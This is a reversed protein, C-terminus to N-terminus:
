SELFDIDGLQSRLEYPVFGLETRCLELAVSDELQYMMVLSVVADSASMDPGDEEMAHEELMVQMEHRADELTTIMTPGEMTPLVMTYCFLGSTCLYLRALRTSM